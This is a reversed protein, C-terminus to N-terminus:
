ATMMGTVMPGPWKETGHAALRRYWRIVNAGRHQGGADLSLWRRFLLNCTRTRGPAGCFGLEADMQEKGQKGGGIATPVAGPDGLRRKGLRRDEATQAHLRQWGRWSSSELAHELRARICVAQIRAVLVDVLATRKDLGYADCFRQLRRRAEAVMPGALDVGVVM